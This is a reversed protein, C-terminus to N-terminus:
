EIQMISIQVEQSANEGLGLREWGRVVVLRGRNETQSNKIGCILTIM